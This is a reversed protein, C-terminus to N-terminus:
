INSEIIKCFECFTNQDSLDSISIKETELMENIKEEGYKEKLFEAKILGEMEPDQRYVIGKTDGEKIEKEFKEVEKGMKENEMM